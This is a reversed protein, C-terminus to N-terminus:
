ITLIVIRVLNQRIKIFVPDAAIKTSIPLTHLKYIFLSVTVMDWVILLAWHVFYITFLTDPKIPVIYYIVLTWRSVSDFDDNWGCTLNFTLFCFQNWILMFVCITVMVAFVWRPYGVIVQTDVFTFYLRSLQYMGMSVFVLTGTMNRGTEAVYCMVPLWELIILTYYGM